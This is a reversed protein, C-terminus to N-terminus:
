YIGRILSIVHILGIHLWPITFISFLAGACFKSSRSGAVAVVFPVVLGVIAVVQIKRVSQADGVPEWFHWVLLVVLFSVLPAVIFDVIYVLGADNDARKGIKIASVIGVVSLILYFPLYMVILVIGM